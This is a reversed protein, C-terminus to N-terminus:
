DERNYTGAKTKARNEKSNLKSNQKKFKKLYISLVNIPLREEKRMYKNIYM